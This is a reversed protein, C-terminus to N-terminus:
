FWYDYGPYGTSWFRWGAGIVPYGTLRNKLLWRNGIPIRNDLGTALIKFFNPRKSRIQTNPRTKQSLKSKKKDCNFKNYVM